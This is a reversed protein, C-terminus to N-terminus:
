SLPSHYILFYKEIFGKNVTASTHRQLVLRCTPLGHEEPKNEQTPTQPNSDGWVQLKLIQATHGRWGLRPMDVPREKERDREAEGRGWSLGQISLNTM